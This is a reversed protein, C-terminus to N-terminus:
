DQLPRIRGSRECSLPSLSSALSHHCILCRTGRPSPSLLLFSLHASVRDGGHFSEAHQLVYFITGDRCVRLHNSASDLKKKKGFTGKLCSSSVNKFNHEWTRVNDLPQHLVQADLVWTPKKKEKKKKKIPLM